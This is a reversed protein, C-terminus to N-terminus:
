AVAPRPRRLRMAPREVFRCSLYGLGLAIPLALAFMLWPNSVGWWGLLKQVPWGYLYTGYSIDPFDPLRPSPLPVTQTTLLAGTLFWFLLPAGDWIQPAARWDGIVLSVAILLGWVALVLIRRQFLGFLLPVLAYCLVEWQITWMPGNLYPAKTGPFVNIIPPFLVVLNGLLTIPYVTAGGLPAVIAVCVGFAVVFAPVIRLFRRRAYTRLDPQAKWSQTILYGSLLFFGFVAWRGLTLDNLSPETGGSTVFSHSFLVTVALGLRVWDLIPNRTGM